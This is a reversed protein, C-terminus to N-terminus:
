TGECEEYQLSWSNDDSCTTIQVPSADPFSYGPVCHYVAYTMGDGRIIAAHHVYPPPSCADDLLLWHTDRQYILKSVM